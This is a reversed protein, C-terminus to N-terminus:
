SQSGFPAEKSCTLMKVEQKPAAKTELISAPPIAVVCGVNRGREEGEGQMHLKRTYPSTESLPLSFPRRNGPYPLFFGIEAICGVLAPRELLIEVPEACLLTQALCLLM